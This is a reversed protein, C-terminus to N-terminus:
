KRTAYSLLFKNIAQYSEYTERFTKLGHREYDKKYSEILHLNSEYMMKVQIKSLKLAKFNATETLNNM